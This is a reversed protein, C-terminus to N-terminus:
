FKHGCHPCKVVDLFEAGYEARFTAENRGYAEAFAEAPITPNMEWTPIQISADTNESLNYFMGLKGTPTSFCFVRGECPGIATRGTEDKPTFCMVSPRIAYYVEDASSEGHDSYYHAMEDLIVAINASGRLANAKASCVELKITARPNPNAPHFLGGFDLDAVTQFRTSSLTQTLPAMTGWPGDVTMLADLERKVYKAQDKNFAIVRVGIQSSAPLGYYAQPNDLEKVLKYTEYAAIVSTLIGKGARRGFVGIFETHTVGPTVRLITSRGERCLYELYSAETFDPWYDRDMRWDTRVQFKETNDLPLGYAVKLVVKQVPYLSQRLIVEAFEIIDIIPNKEQISVVSRM